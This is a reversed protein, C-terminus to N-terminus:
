ARKLNALPSYRQYNKRIDEDDLDLYCQETVTVSSHGLIRSLTYIDGGSMLFRKAFNNRLGHPSCEEIGVRNCYKKYNKEFNNIFLPKDRLQVPFLLSSEIYRDKFKIWKKLLECMKVSFFVTRAVKAKTIEARLRIARNQLDLDTTTDILLTEGIRMGTDFVLQIVVYDRFEAYKTIDLCKLLKHFEEDKIFAKKKRQSKLFKVKDFPNVKIMYNDAMFNFYVKLNRIYNNITANQIPKSYDTRNHPKNWERSNENSIITYKGRERLYVIYDRVAEKTVDKTSYINKEEELYKAFLRLTQEYSRMSKKSLGKSQCCSMFDDIEYDFKTM